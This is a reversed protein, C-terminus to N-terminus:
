IKNRRRGKKRRVIEEVKIYPTARLNITVMDESKRKVLSEGFGGYRIGRIFAKVCMGKNPQPIQVVENFHRLYQKLSEGKSQKMEFLYTTEPPKTKNAAFHAVFLRVFVELSTVPGELLTSFWDLMTGVLSGALMKCRVVDSGGHILMQARFMKIHTNPDQKGTFSSIKSFMYNTPFSENLIEESFPQFDPEM